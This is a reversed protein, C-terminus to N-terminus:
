IFPIHVPKRAFCQTEQGYTAICYGDKETTLSPCTPVCQLTSSMRKQACADCFQAGFAACGRRPDCEPSCKKNASLAQTASRIGHFKLRHITVTLSSALSNRYTIFWTGAPNEGWFQVSTLPFHMYGDTSNDSPRFPLLESITGSPSQLRMSISGRQRQLVGAAYTASFEMEIHELYIISSKFRLPWINNSTVTRSCTLEIINKSCNSTSCL